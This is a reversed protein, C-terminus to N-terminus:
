GARLALECGPAARPERVAPGAGAVFVAGRAAEGPLRLGPESDSSESREPEPSQLHSTIDRRM